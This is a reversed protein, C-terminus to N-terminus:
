AYENRNNTPGVDGIASQTSMRVHKASRRADLTEMVVVIVGVPGLILGRLFGSSVNLDASGSLLAGIIGWSVCWLLVVSLV